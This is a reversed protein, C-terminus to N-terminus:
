TWYFGLETHHWEATPDRSSVMGFFDSSNGPLSVLSLAALVAYVILLQRRFRSTKIKTDPNLVLQCVVRWPVLVDWRPFLFSTKLLAKPLSINGPPYNRCDPEEVSNTVKKSPRKKTHDKSEPTLRHSQFLQFPSHYIKVQFWHEFGSSLSLFIISLEIM